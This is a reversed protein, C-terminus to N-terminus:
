LRRRLVVLDGLAKDISVADGFWRRARDGADGGYGARVHVYGGPKTVRLMSEIVRREDDPELHVMLWGSTTADYSALEFGALTTADGVRRNGSVAPYTKAIEDARDILRDLLRRLDDGIAYRPDGTDALERLRRLQNAYHARVHEAAKAFSPHGDGMELDVCDVQVDLASLETGMLGLGSAVDLV